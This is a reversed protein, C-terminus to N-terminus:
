AKPVLSERRMGAGGAKGGDPSGDDGFCPSSSAGHSPVAASSPPM